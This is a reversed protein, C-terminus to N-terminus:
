KGEKGKEVAKKITRWIGYGAGAVAVLGVVAVVGKAWTPLENFKM